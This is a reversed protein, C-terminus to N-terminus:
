LTLADVSTTPLHGDRPATLDPNDLGTQVAWTALTLLCGLIMLLMGPDLPADWVAGPTRKLLEPKAFLFAPFLVLAQLGLLVEPLRPLSAEVYLVLAAFLLLVAAFSGQHVVTAGPQFMVLIWFGVSGLALLMMRDAFKTPGRAFFRAPFGANLLGLAIVLSFFSGTTLREIFTSLSSSTLLSAPDGWIARLDEWKGAVFSAPTLSGYGKLLAQWLTLGSNNVGALHFKLLTEQTPDYVTQYLKWPALLAFIILLAALSLRRRPLGGTCLAFGLLVAFTFGCDFHCLLSLGISAAALSADVGTWASGDLRVLPFCALALLCYTASLLKPWVYFSNVLCFASLMSFALVLVLQRNTARGARLLVWIGAVWTCQLWVGLLGSSLSKTLIVDFPFELLNIAAQLPPRDSGHTGPILEQRLSVGDYVHEALIEPLLNDPPLGMLYRFQAIEGPGDEEFYLFGCANSFVAILSVALFCAGVERLVLRPIFSIGRRCKWGLIALSVLPILIAVARGLTGNLLYPWFAAYGCVGSTVLILAIVRFPEIKRLRLIWVGAALGPLLFLLGYLVMFASRYMARLLSYIFSDRGEGPLTVAIWGTTPDHSSDEAVVRVQAGRWEPPIVWVRLRFHFSPYITSRLDLTRAYDQDELYLRVGPLNPFGAVYFRLVKPASFWGTRLVGIGDATVGCSTFQPLNFQRDDEWRGCDGPRNSHFSGEM